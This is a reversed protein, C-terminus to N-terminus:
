TPSDSNLLGRISNTMFTVRLHKNGMNLSYHELNYSKPCKGVPNLVIIHFFSLIVIIQINQFLTINDREHTCTCFSTGFDDIKQGTIM